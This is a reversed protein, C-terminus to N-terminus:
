QTETVTVTTTSIAFVKLKGCGFQDSDYTQTTSSLQLHGNYQGLTPAGDYFSLTIDGGVTSITRSACTTTALLQTPTHVTLVRQTTSGSINNVGIQAIAGPYTRAEILGPRVFYMVLFFLLGAFMMMGVLLIVATISHLSLQKMNSM